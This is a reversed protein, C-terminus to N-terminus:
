VLAKKINWDSDSDIGRNGDFRDLTANEGYIEEYMMENNRQAVNTSFYIVSGIVLIILTMIIAVRRSSLYNSTLRDGESM